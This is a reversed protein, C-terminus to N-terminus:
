GGEGSPGLLQEALAQRARSIRSRVTGVPLGLRVAIDDYSLGLAERLQLVERHEATLESMAAALQQQDAVLSSLRRASLDLEPLDQGSPETRRQKRRLLMLAENRAVRDLWTTFRADGRYGGIREAVAILTAQVADDVDARDFLLSRISREALGLDLIQRLLRRRAQTAGAAAEGALRDLVEALGDRDGAARLRRIEHALRRDQALEVNDPRGPQQERM